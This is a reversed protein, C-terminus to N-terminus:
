SRFQRITKSFKSGHTNCPAKSNNQRCNSGNTAAKMTSRFSPGPGTERIVPLDTSVRACPNHEKKMPQVCNSQVVSPATPLFLAFPQEGVLCRQGPLRMALSFETENCVVVLVRCATHTHTYFQPTPAFESPLLNCAKISRTDSTHGRTSYACSM